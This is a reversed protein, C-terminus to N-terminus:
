STSNECSPRELADRDWNGLNAAAEYSSQCFDLLSASPSNAKRIDEYMLVFEGIQNQYFAADPRGRAERFGQLEPVTYACFAADNIDGSGPWFGVSSVEHSYAERIMAGANPREPARRGSFRTVALDFSGWFCHMPSSKGIFKAWFQNFLSDLSLLIRWFREVWHPNYSAHIRDQDFPIPSPVEVPMHWMNVEIGASRLM